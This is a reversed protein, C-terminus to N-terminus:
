WGEGFLTVCACAQMSFKGRCDAHKLLALSVAIVAIQTTHQIAQTRPSDEELRADSKGILAAQEACEKFQVITHCGLLCDAAAIGQWHAEYGSTHQQWSCWIM